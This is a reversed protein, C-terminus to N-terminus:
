KKCTTKLHEVMTKYDWTQKKEKTAAKKVRKNQRTERKPTKEDKESESCSCANFEIRSFVWEKLNKNV